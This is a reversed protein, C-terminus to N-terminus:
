RRARWAKDGLARMDILLARALEPTAALGNFYAEIAQEVQAHWDIAPDIADVLSNLRQRCYAEDLAILCEAKSAFHEYFTRKSVRAETAIDAITVAAYGKTSVCRAMADLLREVPKVALAASKKM